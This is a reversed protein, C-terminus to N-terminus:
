KRCESNLMQECVHMKWVPNGIGRSARYYYKRTFSERSRHSAELFFKPFRISLLLFSVKLYIRRFQLRKIFIFSLLHDHHGFDFFYGVARARLWLPNAVVLSLTYFRHVLSLFFTATVDCCFCPVHFAVSPSSLQTTM